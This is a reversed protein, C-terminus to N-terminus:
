FLTHEINNKGILKFVVVVVAVVFYVTVTSMLATFANNLCVYLRSFRKYYQGIMIHNRCNRKLIIKLFILCILKPEFM